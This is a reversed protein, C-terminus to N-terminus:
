ILLILKGKGNHLQRDIPNIEPNESLTNALKIIFLCISFIKLNIQMM